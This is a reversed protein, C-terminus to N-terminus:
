CQSLDCFDPNGNKRSFNSARAICSGCPLLQDSSLPLQGRGPPLAGEAGLVRLGKWEADGCVSVRSWAWADDHKEWVTEGVTREWFYLSSLHAPPWVNRLAFSSHEQTNFISLTVREQNKRGLIKCAKSSYDRNKTSRVM